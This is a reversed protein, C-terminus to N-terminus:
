SRHNIARKRYIFSRFELYVGLLLRFTQTFATQLMINHRDVEEQTPLKPDILKRVFEDEKELGIRECEEGVMGEPFDVEEEAIEGGDAKVDEIPSVSTSFESVLRGAKM